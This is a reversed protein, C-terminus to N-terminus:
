DSNFTLARVNPTRVGPRIEGSPIVFMPGWRTTNTTVHSFSVQGAAAWRNQSADYRIVARSFGPHNMPPQFGVHQGDDGGFILISQSDWTLAPSPAAVVPQLVDALQKWGSNPRYAYADWLYERSATGKSDRRLAAGSIILFSDSLSASVALMRGKGPWTELTEWKWPLSKLDLAMFQSSANVSNPAEIGGAIYITQGVLAGCMNALPVPLPPVGDRVIHPPNSRLLFCDSTHETQDSGGVCLIGNPTSISVGYGLPRDLKGLLSWSRADRDLAYIQDHWIKVGDEWPMKEPFNAGGAILLTNEHVGVFAGALGVHNPISPLESWRSWPDSTALVDRQACLHSLWTSQVGLMAMMSFVFQLYGRSLLNFRNPQTVLSM